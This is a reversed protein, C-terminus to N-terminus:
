AYGFIEQLTDIAQQDDGWLQDLFDLWQQPKPANPDYAFDLANHNFYSPTHALLMRTPLHMLGNACAVLTHPPQRYAGDLWAPPEISADLQAAARLADFVEGVMKINPKVPQDGKVNGSRCQDLFAYLRARLGAEEAELWASGSWEFFGGRHHRLSVALGHQFLRATDYPARLNILGSAPARDYVRRLEREGNPLGKEQAWEAIEPDQHDLLADRMQEYTM